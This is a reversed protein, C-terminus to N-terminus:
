PLLRGGLRKWPAAFGRAAALGRLRRAPGADVINLMLWRRRHYEFFFREVGEPALGPGVAAAFAGWLEARFPADIRMSQLAFWLNLADNAPHSRRLSNAFDIIGVRGGDLHVNRPVFDGHAFSVPLRVGRVSAALEESEEVAGPFLARGLLRFRALKESTYRLYEFHFPDPVAEPATSEARWAHLVGGLAAMAAVCDARAAPSRIADSLRKGPVFTMAVVRAEADTGLARGDLLRPDREAVRHHLEIGAAENLPLDPDGQLYKKFVAPAGGVTGRYIRCYANEAIPALDRPAEGAARGFEEALRADM